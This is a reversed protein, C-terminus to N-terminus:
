KRNVSQRSQVTYRNLKLFQCVERTVATMRQDEGLTGLHM